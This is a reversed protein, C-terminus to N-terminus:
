FLSWEESLTVCALPGNTLKLITCMVEFEGETVQNKQKNTQQRKLAASVFYPRELSPTLDSSYSGAQAVAVAIGPRLLM